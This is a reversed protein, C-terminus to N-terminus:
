KKRNQEKFYRSLAANAEMIEQQNMRSAESYSLIEHVIPRWFWWNSDVIQKFYSRDNLNVVDNGELCRKLTSTDPNWSGELFGSPWM